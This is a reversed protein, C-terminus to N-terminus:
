RCAASSQGALARSFPPKCSHGFRGRSCCRGSTGGSALSVLDMAFRNERITQGEAMPTRQLKATQFASNLSAKLVAFVRNASARRGRESGEGEPRLKRKGKKDARYEAPRTALERLYSSIRETTMMSMEDSGLAALHLARDGVQDQRRNAPSRKSITMSRTAFGIVRPAFAMTQDLQDFWARAAKADSFTVVSSSEADLHDDAPGVTESPARREEIPIAGALLRRQTGQSLRACARYLDRVLLPCQARSPKRSCGPQRAKSRQSYAGDPCM